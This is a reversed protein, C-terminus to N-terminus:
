KEISAASWKPKEPGNLDGVARLDVRAVKTQKSKGPSKKLAKNWKVSELLHHKVWLSEKGQM